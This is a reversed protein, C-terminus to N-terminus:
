EDLGAFRRVANVRRGNPYRALYEAALARAHAADGARHAAEVQRALADQALASNLSLARARGYAAEAERARSLQQMLVNGLMFAALPARSDRPHDDAVRALYPLAAEPHGSLRAADAALMLEEVDDIPPHKTQQLLEYARAFDGHEAPERWNGRAAPAHTRPAAPRANPLAANPPAEAPSEAASEAKPTSPKPFWGAEGASLVSRGDRWEVAVRGREVVVRTRDGQRELVFATGLVEVTVADCRVRFVRGSRRTVEFRARGSELELSTRAPSVETLVVHTQPDLLDIQSGDALQMRQAFTAAGTAARAPLETRAAPKDAVRGGHRLGWAGAVALAGAVAASALVARRRKRRVLKRQAQLLTRQVRQDDWREDIQALATEVELGPESM